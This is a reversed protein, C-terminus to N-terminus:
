HRRKKLAEIIQMILGEVYGAPTPVPSTVVAITDKGSLEGIRDMVAKIYAGGGTNSVRLGLNVNPYTHSRRKVYREGALFGVTAMGLMKLFDRRSMVPNERILDWLDKAAVGAIGWTAMLSAVDAAINEGSWDEEIKKKIEEPLAHIEVNVGMSKLEEIKDSLLDEVGPFALLHVEVPKDNKIRPFLHHFANADVIIRKGSLNPVDLEAAIRQNLKGLEESLKSTLIKEAPLFYVDVGKEEITIKPLGIRDFGIGLGSGEVPETEGYAKAFGLGMALLAGSRFALELFERRTIEEGM